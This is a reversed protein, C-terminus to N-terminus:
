AFASGAISPAPVTQNSVAVARTNNMVSGASADPNARRTGELDTVM